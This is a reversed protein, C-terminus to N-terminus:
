GHRHVKWSSGGCPFDIAERTGSAFTASRAGGPAPGQESRFALGCAILLLALWGVLFFWGCSMLIAYFVDGDM